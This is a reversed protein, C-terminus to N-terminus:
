RRSCARRRLARERDPLQRRHDRTYNAPDFGPAFDSGQGAPGTYAYRVLSPNAVDTNGAFQAESYKGAYHAYTRRCCSRGDGKADFTAALRPVITDTDVGVIDGTAESRM